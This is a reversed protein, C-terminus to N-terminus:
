AVPPPLPEPAAPGLMALAPPPLPEPAAPGLAFASAVPILLAASITVSRFFLKTM